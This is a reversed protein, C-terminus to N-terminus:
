LAAREARLAEKKAKLEDHIDRDEKKDTKALIEITSRILKADIRDLEADIRAIEAVRVREAAGEPDGEIWEGDQYTPKALSREPAETILPQGPVHISVMGAFTNDDHLAAVQGKYFMLEGDVIALKEGGKLKSRAEAYQENSISIETEHGTPKQGVGFNDGAHAYM